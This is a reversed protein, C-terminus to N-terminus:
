RTRAPTPGAVFKVQRGNTLQVRELKAVVIHRPGLLELVQERIAGDKRAGSPAENFV